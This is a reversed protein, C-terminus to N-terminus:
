VDIQNITLRNSYIRNEVIEGAPVQAGRLILANRLVAGRGIKSRTEIIVNPGIKCDAEVDVGPELLYPQTFLVSVPFKKPLSSDKNDLYHLNLDLLDNPNTLTLRSSVMKGHVNHTTNIMLQM